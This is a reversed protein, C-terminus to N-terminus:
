PGGKRPDGTASEEDRPKGKGGTSPEKANARNRITGKTDVKVERMYKRVDTGNDLWALLRLFTTTTFNKQTFGRSIVTYIATQAVGARKCVRSWSIRLRRRKVDLDRIFLDIDFVIVIHRENIM